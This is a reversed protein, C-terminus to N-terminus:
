PNRHVGDRLGGEIMTNFVPDAYLGARVGDVSSAFRSIAAAFLVGGPRLVRLAEDLAKLRDRQDTLHYLPGLLLVADASNDAYPLERADGIEASALPTGPQTASAARAAEIHVPAPDLLRVTYGAAALPLAYAGEAGGVDLVTAPAPPLFRGLLERTREAELRGWTTLRDSEPVAAYYSQVAPDVEYGM